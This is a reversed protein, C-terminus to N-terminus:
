LWKIKDEKIRKEFSEHSCCGECGHVGNSHGVGHPCNYEKDGGFSTRLYPWHWKSLEDPDKDQITFAITVHGHKKHEEYEDKSIETYCTLCRYRNNM